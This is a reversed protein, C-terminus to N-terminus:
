NYLVIRLENDKINNWSTPNLPLVLCELKRMEPRFLGAGAHPPLFAGGYLPILSHDSWGNFYLRNTRSLTVARIARQPRLRPLPTLHSREDDRVIRGIFICCLMYWAM